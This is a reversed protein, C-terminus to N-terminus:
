GRPAENSMEITDTQPLEDFDIRSEDLLGLVHLDELITEVVGEVAGEGYPNVKSDLMETLWTIPIKKQTM